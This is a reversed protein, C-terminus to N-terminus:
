RVTIIPTAMDDAESARKVKNQDHKHMRNELTPVLRLALSSSMTREISVPVM